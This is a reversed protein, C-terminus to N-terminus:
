QGRHADVHIGEASRSGLRRAAPRLDIAARAERRSTALEMSDRCWAVAEDLMPQSIAM